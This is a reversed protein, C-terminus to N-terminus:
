KSAPENKVRSLVRAAVRVNGVLTVHLCLQSRRITKTDSCGEHKWIQHMCGDPDLWVVLTVSQYSGGDTSIQSMTDVM